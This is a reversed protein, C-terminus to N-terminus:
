GALVSVQFYPIPPHAQWIAHGGCCVASEGRAKLAEALRISRISVEENTLSYQEKSNLWQDALDLLKSSAQPAASAVQEARKHWLTDGLCASHRIWILIDKRHVAGVKEKKMQEILRRQAEFEAHCADKHAFHAWRFSEAAEYLKDKENEM